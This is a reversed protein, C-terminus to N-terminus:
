AAAAHRRQARRRRIRDHVIFAIAGFSALVASSPEPAASAPSLTFQSVFTGPLKDTENSGPALSDQWYVGSYFVLFNTATSSGQPTASFAIGGESLHPSTPSLSNDNQFFGGPNILGNITWATGEFSITGTIGTLTYPGGAPTDLTTLTGSAQTTNSRKPGIDYSFNWTLDAHARCEPLILAVAM